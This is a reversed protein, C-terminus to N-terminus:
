FGIKRQKAEEKLRQRELMEAHISGDGAPRNNEQLYEVIVDAMSYVCPM